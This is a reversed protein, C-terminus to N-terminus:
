SNYDSGTELKYIIVGQHGYSTVVAANLNCGM